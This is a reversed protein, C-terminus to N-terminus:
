NRDGGETENKRETGEPLFDVLVITTYECILGSRGELVYKLSYRGPINVDIANRGNDQTRNESEDYPYVKIRSKEVPYKVVEGNELVYEYAEIESLADERTFGTVGDSGKFGKTITFDTIGDMYPYYGGDALVRMEENVNGALEPLEVESEERLPKALYIGIGSLIVLVVIVAIIIKGYEGVLRKLKVM